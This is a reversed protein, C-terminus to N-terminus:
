HRRRGRTMPHAPERALVAPPITLALAKAAETPQGPALPAVLFALAAIMVARLTQM